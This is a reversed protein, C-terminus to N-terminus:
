NSYYKGLMRTADEKTSFMGQYNDHPGGIDQYKWNDDNMDVEEIGGEEEATNWYLAYKIDPLCSICGDIRNTDSKEGATWYCRAITDGKKTFEFVLSDMEKLFSRLSSLDKNSPLGVVPCTKTLECFRNLFAKYYLELMEQSVPSLDMMEKWTFDKSIGKNWDNLLSSGFSLEDTATMTLGYNNLWTSEITNLIEEIEKIEKM